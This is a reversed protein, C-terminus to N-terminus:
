GQSIQNHFMDKPKFHNSNTQFIDSKACFGGNYGTKLELTHSLSYEFRIYNLKGLRFNQILVIHNPFFISGRAPSIKYDTVMCPAAWFKIFRNLRKPSVYLYILMIIFVIFLYLDKLHQHQLAIEPDLSRQKSMIINM